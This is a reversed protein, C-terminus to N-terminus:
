DMEWLPPFGAWCGRAGGGIYLSDNTSAYIKFLPCPVLRTTKKDCICVVFKIGKLHFYAVKAFM